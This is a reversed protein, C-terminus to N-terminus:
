SIGLTTPQSPPLQLNLRRAKYGTSISCSTKGLPMSTLASAEEDRQWRSQIGEASPIVAAAILALYRM